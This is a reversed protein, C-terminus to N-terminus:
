SIKGLTKGMEAYVAMARPLQEIEIFEDVAHAQAINGPGFVVAPIGLEGCSTSGNTCYPVPYAEPEMGAARISALCAQVFSSEIPTHWAPHFDDRTFTKGTWSRYTVVDLEVTAGPVPQIAERYIALLTEPTEGLVLRRDVTLRCEVPLTSLSPYPNSILEIPAQIGAGLIADHPDQIAKLCDVLRAMEYVANGSQDDASSHAARGRVDEAANAGAAPPKAM